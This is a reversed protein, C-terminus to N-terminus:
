HSFANGPVVLARYLFHKRDSLHWPYARRKIDSRHYGDDDSRVDREESVPEPFTQHCISSRLRCFEHSGRGFLFGPCDAPSGKM